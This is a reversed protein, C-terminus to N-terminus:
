EQTQIISALGREHMHQLVLAQCLMLGCLVRCGLLQRDPVDFEPREVQATMFDGAFYPFFVIRLHIRYHEQHVRIVLLAEGLGLLLQVTQQGIVGQARHWEQDQTVLDIGGGSGALILQPVGQVQRVVSRPLALHVHAVPRVHPRDLHEHAAHHAAHTITLAEPPQALVDLLHNACSLSCCPLAFLAANHKLPVVRMVFKCVQMLGQM